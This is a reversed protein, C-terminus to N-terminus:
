KKPAPRVEIKWIGKDEPYLGEYPLTVSFSKGQLLDRFPVEFVVKFDPLSASGLESGWRIPTQEWETWFSLRVKQPATRSRAAAEDEAMPESEIALGTSFERPRASLFRPSLREEGKQVDNLVLKSFAGKGKGSNVQCRGLLPDEDPDFEFTVSSFLVKFSIEALSHRGDPIFPSTMDLSLHLEYNPSTRVSKKRERAAPRTGGKRTMVGKSYCVMEKGPPALDFTQEFSNADLIRYTLRAKFGPPINEIAESNFIFLKGDANPGDCVYQNVFGQVHFQRFVYAKRLRDYSFFGWNEHVEGKPNKEQPDFRSENRVQLYQGGLVFAFEQKGRSVGPKGEGTGEWQGVFFQFPKWVDQTKEQQQVAPGILAPLATLLITIMTKRIM